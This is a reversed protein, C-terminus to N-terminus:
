KDVLKRHERQKAETRPHKQEAERQYYLENEQSNIRQEYQKARYKSGKNGM